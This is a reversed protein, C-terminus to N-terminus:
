CGFFRCCDRLWIEWRPKMMEAKYLQQVISVGEAVQSSSIGLTVKCGIRPSDKWVDFDSWTEWAVGKVVWGAMAFAAKIQDSMMSYKDTSLPCHPMGTKYTAKITMHETPTLASLQKNVQDIVSRTVDHMHIAKHKYRDQLLTTPNHITIGLVTIPPAERTNDELKIQTM